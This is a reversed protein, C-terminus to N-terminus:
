NKNIGAFASIFIVGFSILNIVLAIVFLLKDKSKILGRLSEVFCYIIVAMLILGLFFAVIPNINIGIMSLMFSIGWFVYPLLSMVIAAISNPEKGKKKQNKISNYTEM